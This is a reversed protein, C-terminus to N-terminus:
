LGARAWLILRSSSIWNPGSYPSHSSCNPRVLCCSNALLISGSCRRRKNCSSALRSANLFACAASLLMSALVMSFIEHGALHVQHSRTRAIGFQEREFGEFKQLQGIDHQVVIQDARFDEGENWRRGFDVVDAFAKAALADALRLDVRQHNLVRQQAQLNDAELAAIRENEAAGAFLHFSQALGADFEFNNGADCGCEAGCGVCFNWESM